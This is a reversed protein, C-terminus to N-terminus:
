CLAFVPGLHLSQEREKGLFMITGLRWQTQAVHPLTAHEYLPGRRVANSAGIGGKPWVFVCLVTLKRWWTTSDSSGRTTHKSQRLSAM